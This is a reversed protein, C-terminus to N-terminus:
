EIIEVIWETEEIHKTAYVTIDKFKKQGKITLNITADGYSGDSNTTMQISGTPLLGFGQISGLERTLEQNNKIHNKIESYADTFPVISFLITQILLAFVIVGIGIKEPITEKGIERNTKIRSSLFSILGIFVIVWGISISEWFFYLGVLRSLYGYIVFTLGTISVLKTFKGLKIM